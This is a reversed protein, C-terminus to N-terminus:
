AKVEALYQAILAENTSNNARAVVNCFLTVIGLTHDVAKYEVGYNRVSGNIDATTILWKSASQDVEFGADVLLRLDATVHALNGEVAVQTDPDIEFNRRGVQCYFPESVGITHTGDEIIAPMGFGTAGDRLTFRLDQQAIARLNM